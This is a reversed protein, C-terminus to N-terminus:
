KAEALATAEAVLAQFAAEDVARAGAARWRVDGKADLLLLYAADPGSYEVRAKWLDTGGYVTMVREHKAKPTNNRMGRDIFWRALRASGGVMPVQFSTVAQNGEFRHDFREVWAEVAFRSDYTFGLAVLAVKGAAADPLVADKGSLFDGKLAPMRAGVALPVKGEPDKQGSAGVTALATMMTVAVALRRM